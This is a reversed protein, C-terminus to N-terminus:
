SDTTLIHGEFRSFWSVCFSDASKAFYIIVKQIQSLVFIVMKLTIVVLM